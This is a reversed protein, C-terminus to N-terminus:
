KKGRVENRRGEKKGGYAKNHVQLSARKRRANRLTIGKKVIYKVRMRKLSIEKLTRRRGEQYATKV